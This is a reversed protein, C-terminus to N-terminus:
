AKMMIRKEINVQSYVVSGLWWSDSLSRLLTFIIGAQAELDDVALVEKLAGCRTDFFSSSATDRNFTEPMHHATDRVPSNIRPDVQEMSLLTKNFFDVSSSM